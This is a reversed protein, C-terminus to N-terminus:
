STPKEFQSPGRRNLRQRKVKSVETARRKKSAKKTPEMKSRRRPSASANTDGDADAAKAFEAMRHVLEAVSLQGDKDYDKRMLMKADQLKVAALAVRVVLAAHAQSKARNCTPNPDYLVFKASQRQRPRHRLVADPRGINFLRMSADVGMISKAWRAGNIRRATTSKAVDRWETFHKWRVNSFGCSYFDEQKSLSRRFVRSATGHHRGTRWPPRGHPVRGWLDVEISMGDGLGGIQISTLRDGNRLAAPTPSACAQIGPWPPLTARQRGGFRLVSDCNARKWRQCRQRRVDLIADDHAVASAMARSQPLKTDTM